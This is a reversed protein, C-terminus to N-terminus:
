RGSLSYWDYSYVNSVSINCFSQITYVNYMLSKVNYKNMKNFIYAWPMKIVPPDNRGCLFFFYKPM